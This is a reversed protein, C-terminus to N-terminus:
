CEMKDTRGRDPGPNGLNQEPRNWDPGLNKKNKRSPTTRTTRNRVTSGQHYSNRGHFEEWPIEGM